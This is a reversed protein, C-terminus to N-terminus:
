DKEEVKNTGPNSDKLQSQQPNVNVSPLEAIRIVRQPFAIDIGGEQFQRAINTHVDHQVGSYVSVDAIYIRLDFDLTSDGFGVFYAGPSPDKLIDPHDNAIKLLVKEVLKTSTGYAVGVKVTIRLTSDTLGWNLINQTVFSKNPIILEKRDFSRVTTARIRIRTVTGSVDGVTVIDGVRIPRETLIIIGSVFNAFIEQLGFGLGFTLAAALWQISSWRIGLTNSGLTIGVFFIIYRAITSLAYRGGSDIPLHELLLIELLGPINTTAIITFTFILLALGLDALTIVDADAELKATEDKDKAKSKEAEASQHGAPRDLEALKNHSDEVIKFSPWVYVKDLKRLAPLTEAWIGYFGFLILIFIIGRFLQQTQRNFLPIDPSEAEPAEENDNGKLEEGSKEIAAELAAQRESEELHVRAVRLWRELLAHIFVLTLILWLSLFSRVELQMATYHYGRLSLLALFVPFGISFLGWVYRGRALIGGPSSEQLPGFVPGSPRLIRQLFIALFVQGLVFALRGLSDNWVTNPHQELVLVVTYTLLKAPIYWKLQRRLIKCSEQLWSFHLDALGEPLLTQRMLELPILAFAVSKLANATYLIVPEQNIPMELAHGLFWLILPVPSSRVLTLFGVQVTYKFRDQGTKEIIPAFSTIRKKAAFGAGVILGLCLLRLLTELWHEFSRKLTHWIATPWPSLNFLWKLANRTDSWGPLSKGTVSRVWLIREEIYSRYELNAAIYRSTTNDLEVLKNFYKTSDQILQDLLKRRATFLERAVFEMTLMGLPDDKKGLREIISQVRKEVDGFELREEEFIILGYQLSSIRESREKIQSEYISVDPLSDLQRRLLLGMANTLGAAGVKRTVVKYRGKITNLVDNLVTLDNDAGEILSNLGTTGSRMAALRANRTAIERLAPHDRATTRRLAEAERKSQEAENRRKDTVVKQWLSLRKAAENESRLAVDLRAPLLERRADYSKLENELSLSALREARRRALLLTRTALAIEAKLETSPPTGLSQETKNLKQKARTILEILTARRANRRGSEAKLLSTQERAAKLSAAARARNEDLKALKIGKAVSIEPDKPPIALRDKIATLLAPASAAERDYESSKTVSAAAVQLQGLAQQYQAKIASKEQESIHKLTALSSTRSTILAVTLQAEETDLPNKQKPIPGDQAVVPLVCLALSSVITFQFLSTRLAALKMIHDM